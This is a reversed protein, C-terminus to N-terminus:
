AASPATKSYYKAMCQHSRDDLFLVAVCSKNMTFLCHQFSTKLDPRTQQLRHIFSLWEDTLVGSFCYTLMTQMNKPASCGPSMTNVTHRSQRPADVLKCSVRGSSAAKVVCGFLLKSELYIKCIRTTSIRLSKTKLNFYFINLISQELLYQKVYRFYIIERPQSELVYVLFFVSSIRTRRCRFM